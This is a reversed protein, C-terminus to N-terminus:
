NLRNSVSFVEAQECLSEVLLELLVLLYILQKTM